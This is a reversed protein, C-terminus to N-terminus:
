YCGACGGKPDKDRTLPGAILCQGCSRGMAEMDRSAVVPGLGAHSYCGACVSSSSLLCGFWSDGEYWTTMMM